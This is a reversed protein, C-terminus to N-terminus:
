FCEQTQKEAKPFKVSWNEKEERFCIDAPDLDKFESSFLSFLHQTLWLSNSGPQEQFLNAYFYSSHYSPPDQLNTKLQRKWIPIQCQAQAYNCPSCLSNQSM